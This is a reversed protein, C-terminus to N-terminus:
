GPFRASRSRSAGAGVCGARRRLEPVVTKGVEAAGMGRADEDLGGRRGYEGEM